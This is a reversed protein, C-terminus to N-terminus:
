FRIGGPLVRCGPDPRFRSGTGIGLVPCNRCRVPGPRELRNEAGPLVPRLWHGAAIRWINRALLSLVLGLYDQAVGGAGNFITVPPMFVQYADSIFYELLWVMGLLAALTVATRKAAKPGPIWSVLFALTCGLALAFATLAAFRGWQLEETIWFHLLWEQYVATGMLFVGPSLTWKQLSQLKRM